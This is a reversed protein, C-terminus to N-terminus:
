GRSPDNLMLKINVSRNKQQKAAMDKILIIIQFSNGCIILCVSEFHWHETNRGTHWVDDGEENM